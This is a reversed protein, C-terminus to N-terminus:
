SITCKYIAKTNHRGIDGFLGHPAGNSLFKLGRDYATYSVYILYQNNWLVWILLAGVNDCCM